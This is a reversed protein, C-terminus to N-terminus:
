DAVRLGYMQLFKDAIKQAEPRPIGVRLGHTTPLLGFRFRLAELGYDVITRLDKPFVSEPMSVDSSLRKDMRREDQCFVPKQGTKPQERLSALKLSPVGAQTQM